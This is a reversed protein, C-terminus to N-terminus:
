DEPLMMAGVILTFAAVPETPLRLVWALLIAKLSAPAVVIVLVPLASATDPLMPEPVIVLLLPLREM